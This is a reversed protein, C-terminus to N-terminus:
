AARRGPRSPASARDEPALNDIVQHLVSLFTEIRDEPIGALAARNGAAADAKLADVRDRTWATLHYRFRRGDDPDRTRTVLGMREMRSLMEAASPQEIFARACLDKQTLGDRDALWLIIPVQAPTVKLDALRDRLQAAFLRSALTVLYGASQDRDYGRGVAEPAVGM